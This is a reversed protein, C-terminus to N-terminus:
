LKLFELFLKPGIKIGGYLGSVGLSLQYFNENMDITQQFGVYEAITPAVRNILPIFDIINGLAYGASAGAVAGIIGFVGSAALTGFCGLTGKTIDELDMFFRELYVKYINIKSNTLEM